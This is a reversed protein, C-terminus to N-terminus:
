NFRTQRYRLWHWIMLVMGIALAAVDLLMAGMLVEQPILCALGVVIAIIRGAWGVPGLGHGLLGATVLPTAVLASAVAFGIEGWGGQMLLAPQYIFLFPLIYSIWGFRFAEWATEEQNAGALSAAAFATLAIPPTIMSLMGYYFVFMHAAMQNVGLEVLPPAALSALLLYVGTTPLGLGLIMAALATIVLLLLFNAKGWALMAMSLAFGLGTTTLLGIIMGSVACVLIVDCMGDGSSILTNLMRRPTLRTPGTGMVALFAILAIGAYVAGQEAQWNFTFIGGLLVGFSILVAVGARWLSVGESDTKQELIGLKERRALFDIQVYISLYYLLGPVIASILVVSYPVRLFEAMLFAAAGMVPPMIQGGTSACAEIAAAVKPKMGSRKMLPITVVGTSMVNSVSSGSITGFLASAVVSIKAANGHGHGAVFMALYTFFQGGGAMVLLAGFVIFPVVVFSAVQLSQGLTATSDTGLFRFLDDIPQPRGKLAGPIYDGFLAYALMGAFIWVLSMGAVRRLAELCLAVLAIGIALAELPYQIAQESLIQFRMFMWIGLACGAAGLVLDVVAALGQKRASYRWYVVAASGGLMLGAVQEPFVLLGVRQPLDVVMGIAILPMTAALLAALATSGRALWGDAAKGAATTPMSEEM